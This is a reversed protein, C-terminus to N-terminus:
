RIKDSYVDDQQSKNIEVKGKVKGAAWGMSSRVSGRWFRSVAAVVM